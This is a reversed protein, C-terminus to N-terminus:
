KREDGSCVAPALEAEVHSCCMNSQAMLITPFCVLVYLGLDNGLCVQKQVKLESYSVSALIM